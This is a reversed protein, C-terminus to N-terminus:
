WGQLFQHLQFHGRQNPARKSDIDMRGHASLGSDRFRLQVIERTKFLAWREVRPFLQYQLEGDCYGPGWRGHVVLEKGAQTSFDTFRLQYFQCRGDRPLVM